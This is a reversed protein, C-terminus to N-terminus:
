FTRLEKTYSRKLLNWVVSSYDCIRSIKGCDCAFYGDDKSVSRRPAVVIILYVELVEADLSIRFEGGKLWLPPIQGQSQGPITFVPIWGHIVM